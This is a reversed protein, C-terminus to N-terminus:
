AKGAPVLCDAIGLIVRELNDIIAEDDMRPLGVAPLIWEEMAIWGIYLSVIAAVAVRPDVDPTFGATAARQEAIEALRQSAPFQGMTSDFPMGDLSSHAIIRVYAKHRLGERLMLSLATTLDNTDGAAKWIADENRRLVALYIDHKSGLYRHVLAHSVGAEQGIDRVSVGSFGRKAFLTEAADLITSTTEERRPSLATYRETSM